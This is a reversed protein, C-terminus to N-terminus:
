FLERKRLYTSSLSRMSQPFLLSSRSVNMKSVPVSSNMDYPEKLAEQVIADLDEPITPDPNYINIIPM